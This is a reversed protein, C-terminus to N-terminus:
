IVEVFVWPNVQRAVIAHERGNMETLKDAKEKAKELSPTTYFTCDIHHIRVDIGEYKYKWNGYQDKEVVGYMM